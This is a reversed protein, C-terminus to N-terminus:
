LLKKALRFTEDAEEVSAIGIAVGSISQVTGIYELAEAPPLKGAALTKKAMVAKPTKSIIDLTNLRDGGMMMGSKNVPALYVAIDLGSADIRPITRDPRHTACGPIRGADRIAGIIEAMLSASGSDAIMAHMLVVSSDLAEAYKMEQQWDDIGIAISSKLKKGTRSEAELISDVITKYAIAQIGEIGMEISKVIIDVMNGPKEYLNSYYRLSRSGFQGAGLFPSTGLSIKPFEINEIIM